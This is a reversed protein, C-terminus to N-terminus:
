SVEKFTQVCQISHTEKEPTVIESEGIRGFKKNAVNARELPELNSENSLKNLNQIQVPLLFHLLCYLHTSFLLFM